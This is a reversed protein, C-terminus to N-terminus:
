TQSTCMCNCIFSVFMGFEPCFPDDAANLSLVPISLDEVRIHPSCDQYLEDMTKYGFMPLTVVVGLDQLTRCQLLLLHMKRDVKFHYSFGICM